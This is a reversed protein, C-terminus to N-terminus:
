GCKLPMTANKHMDAITHVFDMPDDLAVVADPVEGISYDNHHLYRACRMRPLNIAAAVHKWNDDLFGVAGIAQLIDAKKDSHAAWGACVIRKKPILGMLSAARSTQQNEGIATVMWVEKGMDELAYILEKATPYLPIDTWFVNDEKLEPWFDRDVNYRISLDYHDSVRPMPRGYQRELWRSFATEFDLAVGDGDLVVVDKSRM